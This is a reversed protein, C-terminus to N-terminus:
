ARMYIHANKNITSKLYFLVLCRMKKAAKVKSFSNNIIIACCVIPKINIKAAHFGCPFGCFCQIGGFWKRLSHYTRLLVKLRHKQNTVFQQHMGRHHELHQRFILVGSWSFDTMSQDLFLEELHKRRVKGFLVGHLLCLDKSDVDLRQVVPQGFEDITTIQLSNHAPFVLFHIHQYCLLIKLIKLIRLIEEYNTKRFKRLKRFIRIWQKVWVGGLM